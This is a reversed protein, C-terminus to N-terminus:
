TRGTRAQDREAILCEVGRVISRETIGAAALLARIDECAGNAFAAHDLAEAWAMQCRFLDRRLDAETASTAIGGQPSRGERANATSPTELSMAM